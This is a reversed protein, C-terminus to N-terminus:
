CRRLVPELRICLELSAAAHNHRDASQQAQGHDENEALRCAVIKDVVVIVAVDVVVFMDIAPQGPVAQLVIGAVPVGIGVMRQRGIRVHEIALQEPQLGAPVM